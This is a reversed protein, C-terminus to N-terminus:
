IYVDQDGRDMDVFFAGDFLSTMITLITFKSQTTFIKRVDANWRTQPLLKKAHIFM